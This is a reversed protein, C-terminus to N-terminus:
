NVHAEYVSLFEDAIAKHGLDSPHVHDTSTMTEPNFISNVDVLYVNTYGQTRLDSVVQSEMSVYLDVNANTHNPYLSKSYSSMYMTTGVLVMSTLTSLHKISETLKAQVNGLHTSDAGFVTVDNFAPLLTSIDQPNTAGILDVNLSNQDLLMSLSYQDILGTQMGDNTFLSGSVGQDDGNFSLSETMTPQYAACPTSAGLGQTISDGFSHVTVTAGPTVVQCTNSGSACASCLGLLILLLYKM